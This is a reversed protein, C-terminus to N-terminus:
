AVLNEFHLKEHSDFLEFSNSLDLRDNHMLIADQCMKIPPWCANYLELCRVKDYASQMHRPFYTKRCDSHNMVDIGSVILTDVRARFYLPLLDSTSGYAEFLCEHSCRSEARSEKNVHFTVPTLHSYWWYKQHHKYDMRVKIRRSAPFSARWVMHRLELPLKPFITFTKPCLDQVFLDMDVDPLEAFCAQYNMDAM